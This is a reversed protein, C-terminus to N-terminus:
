GYLADSVGSEVSSASIGDERWGLLRTADSGSAACPVDELLLPVASNPIPVNCVSNQFGPMRGARYLIFFGVVRDAGVDSEYKGGANRCIM